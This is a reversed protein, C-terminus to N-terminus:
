KVSIFPPMIFTWQSSAFYKVTSGIPADSNSLASVFFKNKQVSSGYGSEGDYLDPQAQLDPKAL